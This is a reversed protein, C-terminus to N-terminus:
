EKGPAKLSEVLRAVRSDMQGFTMMYRSRCVITGDPGAIITVPIASINYLEAATGRPDLLTTYAVGNAQAYAQATRLPDRLAIDLVAVPAKAYAAALQNMHPIQKTCYHCESNGFKIVAVKGRVVDSLRTRQGDLRFLELDLLQAGEAPREVPMMCGQVLALLLTGVVPWSMQRM